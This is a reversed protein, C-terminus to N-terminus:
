ENTEREEVQGTRLLSQALVVTRDEPRQSREVVAVVLVLIPPRRQEMVLGV